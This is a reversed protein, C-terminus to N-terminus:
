PEEESMDQIDDALREDDDMSDEGDEMGMMDMEGEEEMQSGFDDNMEQLSEEEESSVSQQVKKSKGM